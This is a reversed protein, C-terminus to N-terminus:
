PTIQFWSATSRSLQSIPDLYSQQISTPITAASHVNTCKSARKYIKSRILLPYPFRLLKPHLYGISAQNARALPNADINGSFTMPQNKEDVQSKLRDVSHSNVAHSSRHWVAVTTKYYVMTCQYRNVHFPYTVFM